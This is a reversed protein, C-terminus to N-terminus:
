RPCGRGLMHKGAGGGCGSSCCNTTTDVNPAWAEPEGGEHVEGQFIEEAESEVLEEAEEAEEGDAEEQRTSQRRRRTQKKSTPVKKHTHLVPRPQCRTTRM